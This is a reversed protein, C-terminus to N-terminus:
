QQKVQLVQVVVVAVQTLLVQQQYMQDMEARVAVVQDVVVEVLLMKLGAVVVALMRVAMKGHVGQAVQVAPAELLVQKTLVLLVPVAVVLVKTIVQAQQQAVQLVM